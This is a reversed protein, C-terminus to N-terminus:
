ATMIIVLDFDSSAELFATAQEDTVAEVVDYGSQQLILTRTKQLVEYRGISLISTTVEM